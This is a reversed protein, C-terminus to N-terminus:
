STKNSNNSDEIKQRIQEPTFGKEKLVQKVQELTLGIPQLEEAKMFDVMRVTRRNTGADFTVAGVNRNEWNSTDFASEQPPLKTYLKKVDKAKSSNSLEEDKM